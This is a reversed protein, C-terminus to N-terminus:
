KIKYDTKSILAKLNNNKEFLGYRVTGHNFLSCKYPIQWKWPFNWVVVYCVILHIHTNLKTSVFYFKCSGHLALNEHNLFSKEGLLVENHLLWVFYPVLQIVTVWKDGWNSMETFVSVQM